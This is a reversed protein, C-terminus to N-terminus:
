TGFPIKRPLSRDTLDSHSWDSRSILFSYPRSDDDDRTLAPTMNEVDTAGIDSDSDFTLSPAQKFASRTIAPLATPPITKRTSNLGQRHANLHGLSTAIM